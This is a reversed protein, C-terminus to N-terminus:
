ATQGAETDVTPGLALLGEQAIAAYAIGMVGGFVLHWILSGVSGAIASAAWQPGMGLAIPMFTLPGLFWWMFGNVTGWLLSPAVGKALRAFFLGFSAGIAGSISLHMLLGLLPSSEGAMSAIVRFMGQDAMWVGFVIGGLIGAIAGQLLRTGIEAFATKNLM